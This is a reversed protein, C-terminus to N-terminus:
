GGRCMHFAVRRNLLECRAVEVGSPGERIRLREDVKAMAKRFADKSLTKGPLQDLVASMVQEERQRELEAARSEIIPAKM